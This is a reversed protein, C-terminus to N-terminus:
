QAAIFAFIQELTISGTKQADIKTFVKAIRPMGADAEAQTVKSDANKDAATFKAKMEAIEAASLEKASVLSFSAVFTLAIITILRIPLIQSKM